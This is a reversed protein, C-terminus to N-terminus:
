ISYYDDTELGMCQTVSLADFVINIFKRFIKTEDYYKYTTWFIWIYEKLVRNNSFCKFCSCIKM